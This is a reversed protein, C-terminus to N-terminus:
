RAEYFDDADLTSFATLESDNVYDDYLEEAARQMSNSTKDRKISKLIEEMVFIKKEFPLREIEQVLERTDM